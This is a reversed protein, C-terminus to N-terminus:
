PAKNAGVTDNAPPLEIAQYHQARIACKRFVAAFGRHLDQMSLESAVTALADEELAQALFYDIERQLM